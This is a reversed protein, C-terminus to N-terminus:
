FPWLGYVQVMYGTVYSVGNAAATLGLLRPPWKRLWLGLLYFEYLIVCWELLALYLGVDNLIFFSHRFIVNLALNSLLNVGFVWVLFGRRRYRYLRFFGTELCATLLMAPLYSTM